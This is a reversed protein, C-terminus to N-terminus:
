RHGVFQHQDVDHEDHEGRMRSPGVGADSHEQGNGNKHKHKSYFGDDPEPFYRDEVWGLVILTFLTAVSLMMALRLLGLGCAAGIGATVWVAAATTIGRVARKNQIVAGAGLFGIGGVLGQLVRSVEAPGSVLAPGVSSQSAALEKIMVAVSEIGAIVFGASGISILVMTRFGAPRQKREREIGVLGGLVLAALIRVAMDGASLAEM